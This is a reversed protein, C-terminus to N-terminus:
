QQAEGRLRRPTYFERLSSRPAEYSLASRHIHLHKHDGHIICCLLHSPERRRGFRFACRLSVRPSFQFDSFIYIHSSAAAKGGRTGGIWFGSVPMGVGDGDSGGGSGVSGDYDDGGLGDNNGGGDGCDYDVGGFVKVDGGCGGRGSM